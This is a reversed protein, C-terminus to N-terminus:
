GLSGADVRHGPVEAGIDSEWMLKNCTFIMIKESDEENEPFFSQVWQRGSMTSWLTHRHSPVAVRFLFFSMVVLWASKLSGFIRWLVEADIKTGDGNNEFSTNYVHVAVLVSILSTVLNFFFYSGGLLAPLRFQLSRSFEAITKSGVFINILCSVVGVLVHPLLKHLRPPVDQVHHVPGPRSALLPRAGQVVDSVPPGDLVGQCPHAFLQPHVNHLCLYTRAQILRSCRRARRTTSSRRRSTSCCWRSM